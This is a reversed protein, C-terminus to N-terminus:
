LMELDGVVSIATDGEMTYSFSFVNFSFEDIDVSDYDLDIDNQNVLATIECFFSVYIKVDLITGSAFTLSPDIEGFDVYAVIGDDSSVQYVNDGSIPANIAKTLDSYTYFDSQFDMSVTFKEDSENSSENENSSGSNEYNNLNVVYEYGVKYVSINKDLVSMEITFTKESKTEGVKKTIEIVECRTYDSEGIKIDKEINDKPGEFGDIDVYVSRENSLNEITIEIKIPTNKDLFKLDKNTWDTTNNADEEKTSASYNLEPLTIDGGEVGTIKGTVKVYVDKAVFSIQGKFNITGQNLAFVGVILLSVALLLAFIVSTLKMKLKM